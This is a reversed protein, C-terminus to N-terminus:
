ETEIEVTLPTRGGDPDVWWAKWTRHGAMSAPIKKREFAAGTYDVTGHVLIGEDTLRVHPEAYTPPSEKLAPTRITISGKVVTVQPPSPLDGYEVEPRSCSAALGFALM